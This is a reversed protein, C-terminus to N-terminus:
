VIRARTALRSIGAEILFALVALVSVKKILICGLSHGMLIINQM